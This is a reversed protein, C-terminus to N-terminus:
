ATLGGFADQGNKIEQVFEDLSFGAAAKPEALICPQLGAKLLLGNMASFVSTRTNGDMFVHSRYLDQTTRAIIRLKDDDTQAQNMDQEHRQLISSARDRCEQPTKPALDIEFAGERESIGAFWPDNRALERLEARGAETTQTGLVLNLNTGSDRYGSPVRAMERMDLAMERLSEDGDLSPKYSLQLDNNRYTGKSGTMQINELWKGDLAVGKKVDDLMGVFARQMAALSGEGNQELDWKTVDEQQQLNGPAFLRWQDEPALDKVVAHDQMRLQMDFGAEIADLAAGMREKLGPPMTLTDLAVQMDKVVDTPSIGLREAHSLVQQELQVLAQTNFWPPTDGDTYPASYQHMYSELVDRHVDFQRLRAEQFADVGAKRLSDSVTDKELVEMDNDSSGHQAGLASGLLKVLMAIDHHVRGAFQLNTQSAHGDVSYLQKSAALFVAKLPGQSDLVKSLLGRLAQPNEGRLESLAGLLATGAAEEFFDAGQDEGPSSESKLLAVERQQLIEFRAMVDRSSAGAHVALLLDKWGQQLSNRVARADDLQGRSELKRVHKLTDKAVQALDEDKLPKSGLNSLGLCGDYLRRTYEDKAKDSLTSVDVPPDFSSLVRGLEDSPQNGAKPLTFKELRQSQDLLNANRERSALAIVRNIDRGTLQGAQDLGAGHLARVTADEGFRETLLDKFIDFAEQQRQARSSDGLGLAQGLDKFASVISRGFTGKNNILHNSNNKDVTIVGDKNLSALNQYSQLTVVRM